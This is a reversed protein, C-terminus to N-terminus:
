TLSGLPSARTRGRLFLITCAPDPAKVKATSNKDPWTTAAFNTKHCPDYPGITTTPQAQWSHPHHANHGHDRGDPKCRKHRWTPQIQAQPNSDQLKSTRTGTTIKTVGRAGLGAERRTTAAGRRQTADQAPILINDRSSALGQIESNDTRGRTSTLRVPPSRLHLFITKRAAIRSFDCRQIARRSVPSVRNQIFGLPM